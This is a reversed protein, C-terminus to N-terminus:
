TLETIRAAGNAADWIGNLAGLYVPAPMEWYGGPAILVSFNTATAPSGYALKLNATSDNTIIVGKRTGDAGLLATNAAAATVSTIAASSSQPPSTILAGGATAELPVANTGNKAYLRTNAHPASVTNPINNYGDGYNRAWSGFSVSWHWNLSETTIGIATAPIDDGQSDHTAVDGSSGTLTVKESGGPGTGVNTVRVAPGDVTDVFKKNENDTTSPSIAM